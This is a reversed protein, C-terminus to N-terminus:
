TSLVVESTALLVGFYRLTCCSCLASINLYPHNITIRFVRNTHETRIKDYNQQTTPLFEQAYINKTAQRLRAHGTIGQLIGRNQEFPNKM